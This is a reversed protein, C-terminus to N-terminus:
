TKTKWTQKKFADYCQTLLMAVTMPGVWGPVPTISNGQELIEQYRADWVIQGGILSFWVDIVVTHQGIMDAWLIAAQGTALIVIDANKTYERIDPTQSNCSIVTAGANICLLTMPKWVINSRGIIVIKKWALTINYEELLKLIWKPTCPIFGSNDWIMVKGQNEPHFWDIDKEPDIARIINHTQIHPPLPLQVIYWSISKDTNVKQIEWILQTESITEPYQFLQFNMWISEAFKRKQKIYRLSPSNSDGILIAWLCPKQEEKSIETKLSDYIKAALLKGDLKM